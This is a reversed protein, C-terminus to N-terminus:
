EKEGGLFHQNYNEIADNVAKVASDYGSVENVATVKNELNKYVTFFHRMEDFIHNATFSVNNSHTIREGNGGHGAM